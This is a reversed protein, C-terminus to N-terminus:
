RGAAIARRFIKHIEDVVAVSVADADDEVPHRAVKAAVGVAQAVEVAFRAVFRSIRDQRFVLFPIRHVEVVAPRFDLGEENGTGEKPQALEMDVAKADVGYGIHQIEVVAMGVSFPLGILVAAPFIQFGDVKQAMEIRGDKFFKRLGEHDGFFRRSPRKDGFRDVDAAQAEIILPVHAPHVIHQAVHGHIGQEALVIVIENGKGQAVGKRFVEDQGQRVILDDVAFVREEILHGAIVPLFKCAKPGEVTVPHSM